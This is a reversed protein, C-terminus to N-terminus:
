TQGRARRAIARRLDGISARVGTLNPNIDLAQEYFALAREM